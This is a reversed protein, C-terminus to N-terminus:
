ETLYRWFRNKMKQFCNEIEPLSNDASNVWQVIAWTGTVWDIDSWHTRCETTWAWAELITTHKQINPPPFKKIPMPTFSNKPSRKPRIIARTIWTLRPRPYVDMFGTFLHDVEIFIRTTYWDGKQIKRNNKMSTHVTPTREEICKLSKVQPLLLRDGHCKLFPAM